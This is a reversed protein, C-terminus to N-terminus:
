APQGASRLSDAKARAEDARRRMEEPPPLSALVEPPIEGLEVLRALCRQREERARDPNRDMSFKESAAASRIRLRSYVDGGLLASIDVKVKEREAEGNAGVAEGNIPGTKFKPFIIAAEPCVRSCAPCNNKCSEPAQVIVRRDRDVGFVGFLCFGLCEMCHTCRDFDIVPFWGRFGELTIPGPTAHRDQGSRAPREARAKSSPLNPVLVSDLFAPLTTDMSEVRLNLVQTELSNLPADAAEFLWKIARPYCAAIKLAGGRGLQRLRPDRSAALQCLDSVTEFRRGSDSLAQLLRQIVEHPLIKAHSCQCILLRPTPAM